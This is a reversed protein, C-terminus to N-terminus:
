GVIKCLDHFAPWNAEDHRAGIQDACTPCLRVVLLSDEPALVRSLQWKLRAIQVSTARIRFVSFQVRDGYGRIIRYARRWRAPSRIDYTVLHLHRRDAM